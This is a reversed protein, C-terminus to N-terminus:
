ASRQYGSVSNSESGVIQDGASSLAYWLGGFATVGRRQHRRDERRGLLPLAPPRQLHGTTKRGLRRQDRRDFRDSRRRGDAQRDGATAALRNRLRRHVREQLWRRK